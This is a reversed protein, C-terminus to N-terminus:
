YEVSFSIEPYGFSLVTKNKTWGWERTVVKDYDTFSVIWGNSYSYEINKGTERDREIYRYYYRLDSLAIEESAAKQKFKKIITAFSKDLYFSVKNMKKQKTVNFFLVKKQEETVIDKCTYSPKDSFVLVPSLSLNMERLTNKWIEREKRLELDTTYYIDKHIDEIKYYGKIVRKGNEYSFEDKKALDLIHKKLQEVMKEALNDFYREGFEEIEKYIAETDNRKDSTDKLQQLFDSM